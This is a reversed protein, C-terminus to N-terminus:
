VSIAEGDKMPHGAFLPRGEWGETSFREARVLEPAPANVPHIVGEVLAVVPVVLRERGDRQTTRVMGTAGLLTVYRVEESAEANEFIPTGAEELSATCIAYASSEEHGKAMVKEVCDKMKQTHHPRGPM